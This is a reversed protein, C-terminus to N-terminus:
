FRWEVGLVPLLPLDALPRPDHDRWRDFHYFLADRRNLANLVRVYPRIESGPRLWSPTFTRYIEADVPLFGQDPGETVGSADNLVRDTNLAAPQSAGALSEDRFLPISTYPLGDGYGVRLLLGTRNTLKATLGASLLHRGSFRSGDGGFTGQSSWFWTLTYGLWGSTREGQRAVRLDVGSANLSTGASGSIGQFEKVFGALGLRLGPALLQDLSVLLHNAAGVGMGLGAAAVSAGGEGGDLTGRLEEISLTSYQHYRGAALTLAAADTLLWTVALRPALRLGPDESFHDLRLGARLRVAHSLPRTAELYAGGTIGETELETDPLSSEPDLERASYNSTLRDFSAGFRLSGWPVPRSLDVTARIRGSRGHAFFPISDGLPLSAEYRSAALRVEALTGGLLGEFGAVLAGNGWRAQGDPLLTGLKIEPTPAESPSGQSLASASLDLDVEERNWFGTIFLRADRGLGWEARGLLDGYGYPSAGRGLAPAGLNHLLRSSLLLGGSGPLPVELTTGGSLLDLYARGQVRGGRPSRTRLDMIYSLGGDFRAPAGGLFLAAGGLAWPDLGEVLGGMHFPTYVPAGDLLVLKMDAASGRMLLVDQPNSPDQGPISQVVAALGAEVMGTGAAMTRISLEGMEFPPPLEDQWVPPLPSAVVTIPPLEVPKWPLEVDLTVAGDKPVQVQARLGEYGVHLAHVSWKGAVLGPIRYHGTSDAAATFIRDGRTLQILANPLPGAIRGRRGLVVGRLEGGAEQTRGGVAQASLPPPSVPGETGGLGLLTLLFALRIPYPTRM